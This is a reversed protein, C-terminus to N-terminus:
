CTANIHVFALDRSLRHVSGGAGAEVTLRLSASLPHPGGLTKADGSHHPCLGPQGLTGSAQTDLGQGATRHM